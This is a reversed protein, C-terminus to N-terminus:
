SIKGTIATEFYDPNTQWWLLIENEYKTRTPGDPHDCYVDDNQLDFTLIKKLEGDIMIMCDHRNDSEMDWQIQTQFQYVRNGAFWLPKFHANFDTIELWQESPECTFLETFRYLLHYLTGEFAKNLVGPCIRQNAKICKVVHCFGAANRSQIECDELVRSTEIDEQAKWDEIDDSTIEKNRTICQIRWVNAMNSLFKRFYLQDLDRQDKTQLLRKLLPFRLMEM